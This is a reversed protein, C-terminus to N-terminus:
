QDVVPYGGRRPAGAVAAAAALRRRSGSRGVAQPRRLTGPGVHQREHITPAGGLVCRRGRAATAVAGGRWRVSAAVVVGGVRWLVPPPRVALREGGGAGDLKKGNACECSTISSAVSVKPGGLWRWRAIHKRSFLDNRFM